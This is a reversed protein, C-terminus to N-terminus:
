KVGLILPKHAEFVSLSSSPFFSDLALLLLLPPPSSVRGDHFFLAAIIYVLQDFYYLSSRFPRSDFRSVGNIIEKSM